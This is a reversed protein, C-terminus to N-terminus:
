LKKFKVVPVGPNIAAPLLDDYPFKHIYVGNADRSLNPAKFRPDTTMAENHADLYKLGDPTKNLVDDFTTSKAGPSNKAGIFAELVEHLVSTGKPMEYMKDIEKTQEPDVSQNAVTKGDKVESGGFAGGAFWSGNPDTPSTTADIKVEVSADTTAALLKEDAHTKAKGTATVKGTEEDRTLKLSTSQQLQKFVDKAKDGTIFVDTPAMGDPDIFRLPNNFAFTYPSWRRMKDALPDLTHWRMIQNDYMRAGYDYWELGSGDSFEKSQQEKGNYRFKNEATGNLAKSSIGAMTLGFPYYHTEELIPGNTHSVNLNDFFVNLNSENSVYIYLYGSRTINVPSNFFKQHNKYGGGSPVPDYDGGVFRM